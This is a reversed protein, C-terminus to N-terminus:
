GELINSSSSTYAFSYTAPEIGALPELSTFSPHTPPFAAPNGGHLFNHRRYAYDRSATLLSVKRSAGGYSSSRLLALPELITQM